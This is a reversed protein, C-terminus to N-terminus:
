KDAVSYFKRRKIYVNKQFLVREESETLPNTKKKKSLFGVIFIHDSTPDM